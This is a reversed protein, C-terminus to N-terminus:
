PRTTSDAFARGSYEDTRFAEPRRYLRKDREQQVGALVGLFVMSVCDGLFVGYVGLDDVPCVQAARTRLVLLGAWTDDAPGYM